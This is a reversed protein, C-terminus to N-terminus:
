EQYDPPLGHLASTYEPEDELPVDPPQEPLAWTRGALHMIQNAQEAILRQQSEILRLLARERM